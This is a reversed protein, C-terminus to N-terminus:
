HGASSGGGVFLKLDLDEGVIGVVGCAGDLGMTKAVWELVKLDDSSPRAGAGDPHSHWEGLYGLMGDTVRSIEELRERLGAFGRVYSAPQEDSDPPSPVTDVIYIVKRGMDYAGVFVGGTERPLRGCRLDAVEKLLRADTLVTWDGLQQELPEAVDVDVVKVGHNTPDVRWVTIRAKDSCVAERVAHSGIASHLAVLDQPIQVSVDRCSQGTRLQGARSLLGNLEPNAVIARYLQMELTDLPTRRESDEALMTLATGSPNLFLSVRRGTAEMSRSLHRAVSVSASMDLILEAEQLSRDVTEANTGPMMIDAVVGQAVPKGEITQNLVEALVMAKPFGLAFGHLAHRGLNHPLLVDSDILTWQGFGGRVLNSTVQSGLAGVGIATVAIPISRPFGNVASALSRSFAHRPNLPVLSTKSGAKTEDAPILLGPKGENLEWVGIDTGVEAVTSPTAFARYETTEVEGHLARAKPLQLVLILRVSLLRQAEDGAEMVWRRFTTRLMNLLNDGSASIVENLDWLTRPMHHIVGHPRPSCSVALAVHEFTDEPSDPYRHRTIATFTDSSTPVLRVTLWQPEANTGHLEFGEPLVLDSMLGLFLPELPQDGAHLEGVATLALWERVREVFSAPTWNLAVEHFPRDYLCLSRPFGEERLNLHPVLPFDARLALVEPPLLSDASFRVGIREVPRIDHRPRQPVEVDVELVVVEFSGGGDLPVSRCEQLRVFPNVETKLFGVLEQARGVSLNEALLQVGLIQDYSNEM